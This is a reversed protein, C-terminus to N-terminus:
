KSLVSVWDNFKIKIKTILSLKLKQNSCEKGMERLEINRTQEISLNVAAKSRPFGVICM